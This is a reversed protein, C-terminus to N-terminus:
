PKYGCNDLRKRQSQGGCDTQTSRRQKKCPKRLRAYRYPKCTRQACAVYPKCMLCVTEVHTTHCFMDVPQVKKLEYGGNQALYKLDRALTSPNCSVYVIKKPSLKLITNLALEDAGKRPPDFVVIDAKEDAKYLFDALKGADGCYFSLDSSCM